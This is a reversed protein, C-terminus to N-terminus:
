QLNKIKGSDNAEINGPSDNQKLKSREQITDASNDIWKILPTRKPKPDVTKKVATSDKHVVTISITNKSQILATDPSTYIVPSKAISDTVPKIEKVKPKDIVTDIDVHQKKSFYSSLIIVSSFILLVLFSILFIIKKKYGASKKNIGVQLLYMSYNDRTKGYCFQQFAQVLDINGKDNQTILFKLDKDTINELLGDTCLMFYDGDQVDEILHHDIELPSENAKIARLIINKKPHILAEEETIEGSKVLSNVLSHDSTKYQIHGKRIHYIRSDGCWSIFVKRDSLVLLTLTTAMDTNLGHQHAYEVLVQRAEALLSNVIAGSMERKELKMISKGVTESIIRSAIEGNESGGVGDCVIFVKDHLSAKGAEPWIFDEQNTKGGVESLFYIHTLDM